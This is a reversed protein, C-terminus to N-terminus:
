NEAPFVSEQALQPSLLNEAAPAEVHESQEVPHLLQVPAVAVSHVDHSATPTICFGHIFHLTM